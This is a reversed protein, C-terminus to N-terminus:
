PFVYSIICVGDGGRGGTSDDGPFGSAGGGGGGTNPTGAARLIGDTFGTGRGGGGVGGAGGNYPAGWYTGGQSGGGGGGYYSGYYLRGAGGDAGASTRVPRSGGVASTGGGGAGGMSGDNFGTGGDFAVNFSSTGSTSGAVGLGRSLQGLESGGGGCGGNLGGTGISYTGGGGGGLAIVKTSAFTTNTGNTGRSVSVQGGAGGTGVVVAYTGPSLQGAGAGSTFTAAIMNGAGGGGGSQVGGGGGGGICMVEIPGTPPYTTLVFNGNTTFTHFRRQPTGTTTITGGTAYSVSSWSGSGTTTAGNTLTSSRPIVWGYYTVGATLSALFNVTLTGAVVKGSALITGSGSATGIYWFYEAANTSATWSITGGTGSLSSLTVSSITSPTVATFGQQAPFYKYYPHILSLSTGWKASLYGEVQQRQATTLAQNYIIYELAYGKFSYGGSTTGLYRGIAITTFKFNGTSPAFGTASGPTGTGSLVGSRYFNMNTGDFVVSLLLITGASSSSIIVRNTLLRYLEISTSYWQVLFTGTDNYDDANGAYSTAILRSAPTSTGLVYCVIFFTCTTGVNIPSSATPLQFYSGQGNNAIDSMTIGGCGNFLSPTWVPATGATVFSGTFHNAQGSKDKWSSVTSGSAPRVGTGAPDDGDLWVVCSPINTPLFPIASLPDFVSYPHTVPLAALGWKRTLYGEVAQRQGTTIESNFQILECLQGSNGYRDGIEYLVSATQYSGASVSTSLPYSVGDVTIINSSATGSNVWVYQKFVDFGNPAVLTVIGAFVGSPGESINYTNSSTSGTPVGPGFLSDQGNGTTQNLVAFYQLLGGTGSLTVQSTQKFVAFWARPNNPIAVTFGLRAFAPFNVCTLGNPMQALNLTGSGSSSLASGGALGKNSWATINVTSPVLTFTNLDGGDFWIWPTLSDTLTFWRSYPRILPFAHTTPLNGNLGWKWALYGEVAQRQADTLANSYVLVESVFGGNRIIEGTVAVQEGICYRSIAFTGTSAYSAQVNGPLGNVYIYGNTGDYVVCAVFPTGYSYAHRPYAAPSNRYSGINTTSGQNYIAAARSASNWDFQGTAALSIFRQDGGGSAVYSGVVYCTLTQGTISVNGQFYCSGNFALAPRSNLGTTNYIPTGTATASNGLGSKDRWVTVVGDGSPQTITFGDAADLWLCCGPVIRPDFGYISKSTGLVEPM